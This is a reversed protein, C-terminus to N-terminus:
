YEKKLTETRLLAKLLLVMHLQQIEKCKLGLNNCYRDRRRIHSFYYYLRVSSCGLRDRLLGPGCGHYHRIGVGINAVSSKNIVRLACVPYLLGRLGQASRIVLVSGMSMEYGECGKGSGEGERGSKNWGAGCSVSCRLRM